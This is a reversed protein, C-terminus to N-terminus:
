IGGGSMAIVHQFLGASLPSAIHAMVSNGGSSEGAITINAPDGGFVAINQQIWRLAAQQDMLGYNAFDHGEGDIAPHALFGFVGLRYNLTVVIAKGHTALKSPDYDGGQGVQLAGGHIWVVVPLKQGSLAVDASRYVNLYLCDESGGARAFVGLDGNQACSSPLANAKMPTAWSTAPQPPQWRLLGVPPAAYPIGLWSEIGSVTTGIVAGSATNITLPEQAQGPSGTALGAAVAITALLRRLRFDNRMAIKDQQAPLAFV